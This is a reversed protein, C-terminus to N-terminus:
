RGGHQFQLLFAGAPLCLTMHHHWGQWSRTEYEALSIANHQGLLDIQRADRLAHVQELLEPTLEAPANSLYAVRDESGTNRRM